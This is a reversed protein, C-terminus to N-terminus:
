RKFSSRRPGAPSGEFRLIVATLGLAKALRLFKHLPLLMRGCEAKSLSTRTVCDAARMVLRSQSIGRRKRMRRVLDGTLQALEKKRDQPLSDVELRVFDLNLPSQCRICSGNRPYQPTNCVRCTITESERVSSLFQLTSM